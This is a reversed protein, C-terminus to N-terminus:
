WNYKVFLDLFEMGNIYIEERIKKVENEQLKDVYVIDNLDINSMELDIQKKLYGNLDLFLKYFNTQINFKMSSINLTEEAGTNSVKGDLDFKYLVKDYESNYKLVVTSFYGNDKPIYQKNNELVISDKDGVTITVKNTKTSVNDDNKNVLTCINAAIHMDTQSIEIKNVLSLNNNEELIDMSIKLDVGNIATTFELKKLIQKNIILNLDMNNVSNTEIANKIDKVINGVQKKFSSQGQIISDDVQAIYLVYAVSNLIDEDNAFNNIYTVLQELLQKNNIIASYSRNKEEDEGKFKFDVDTIIENAFQKTINSISNEARSMSSRSQLAVESMDKLKFYYDSFVTEETEVLNLGIKKEYLKPISYAVVKDTSCIQVYTEEQKANYVTFKINSSDNTNDKIDSLKISMGNLNSLINENILGGKASKITFYAESSDTNKEENVNFFSESIKEIQSYNDSVSEYTKKLSSVVYNNAFINDGYKLLVFSVAIVILIIISILPIIIKKNIKRKNKNLKKNKNAKKNKNLNKLKSKKVAKKPKNANKSKHKQKISKKKKLGIRKISISSKSKKKTPPEVITKTTNYEKTSGLFEDSSKSINTIFSDLSSTNNNINNNNIQKSVKTGCKGCFKATDDLKTGCKGCYM